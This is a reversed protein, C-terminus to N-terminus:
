ICLMMILSLFMEDSSEFLNELEEVFLIESDSLEYYLFQFYGQFSRRMLVLICFYVLFVGDEIEMDGEDGEEMESGFGYFILVYM